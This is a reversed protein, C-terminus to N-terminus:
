WRETREFLVTAQDSDKTKWHTAQMLINALPSERPMLVYYVEHERLFGEWGPEVHVMRLYSRLFEEGYLDHRDDVVVLIKPYLRYILYGGWYDPALVPERVDSRKLFDVARVPYRNDDFHANMLRRTGLRGGNAAICATAILAAIPWLRGGLKSEVAEMRQLFPRTVVAGLEGTSCLGGTRMRWVKNSLGRSSLGKWAESLLPGCIIVLLLSSVPINRSSYLGSYVAFLVVLGESLRLERTRAALAVLTLLLLIAFCRQAVGHFNPSQFEDIHDMLFRSSLYQYIHVHLKWGYPNAFTALAALISVLGLTRARQMAKLKLLMEGLKGEGLRFWDWVAGIWYIGLLVFGVLFGGHLNVWVLMLFPLLWLLWRRRGRARGGACYQQSSDLTAFWALTFLWSVVHPRALFHIMSASAALLVLALALLLGTGRRVLLQLTWAFVLAIISATFWIVGNLGALRELWGVLVDYMWEWAFWPKGQMTSSFPDVRPVAHMAVIQQGTRIHWGIGADGLLRASVPTFVLLSLLAVFFIDVVSPLLLRVWAPHQTKNPSSTSGDAM